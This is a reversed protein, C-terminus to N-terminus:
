KARKGAWNSTEEREEHECLYGDMEPRHSESMKSSVAIFFVDMRTYLLGRISYKSRLASKFQGEAM